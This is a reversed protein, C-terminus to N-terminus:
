PTPAAGAELVALAGLVQARERGQPAQVLYAEFWRRAEKPACRLMAARGLGAVLEGPRGFNPAQAHITELVMSAEEAAARSGHGALRSELAQALIKQGVRLTLSTYHARVRIIKAMQKLQRGRVASWRATREADEAWLAFVKEPIAACPEIPTKAMAARVNVPRKPVVGGYTPQILALEARTFGNATAWGDLRRDDIDAIRALHWREDLAAATAEGATEAVLHGVACFTGAADRFVPARGAVETNQPFEGRARYARLRDLNAARARRAAPTLGAPPRARLTEEALRLHAAIPHEGALAPGLDGTVANLGGPVAHLYGMWILLGFM